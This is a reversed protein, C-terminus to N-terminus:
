QREIYGSDMGLISGSLYVSDDRGTLELHLGTGGGAVVATSIPATIRSLSKVLTSKGTGDRGTIGVVEGERM